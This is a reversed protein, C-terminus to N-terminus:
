FDLAILLSVVFLRLGFIVKMDASHFSEGIGLLVGSDLTRPMRGFAPGVFHDHSSPPWVISNPLFDPFCPFSGRSGGVFLGGDSVMHQRLGDSSM